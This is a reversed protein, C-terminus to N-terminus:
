RHHHFDWSPERNNVSYAESTTGTGLFGLPQMGTQPTYLFAENDTAISGRLGLWLRQDFKRRKWPAPCCASAKCPAQRRGSSRSDRAM